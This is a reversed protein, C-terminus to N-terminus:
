QQKHQMLAALSARNGRVTSGRRRRVWLGRGMGERDEEQKGEFLCLSPENSNM